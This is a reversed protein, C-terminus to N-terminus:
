LEIILLCIVWNKFPCVYSYIKRWLFYIIVLLCMAGHISSGLPSCGMPDGFLQVLCCSSLLLLGMFPHEVDNTMLSICDFDCSHDSWVWYFPKVGFPLYYTNIFIHLTPCVASFTSYYLHKLSSDSLEEFIINYVIVMRGQLEAGLYVGLLVSFLHRCM